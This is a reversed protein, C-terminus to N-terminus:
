WGTLALFRTVAIAAPWINAGRAKDLAHGLAKYEDDTLRRTRRGDAPRIIGHVPNDQRMRHRVAYGFIAGLLGVTRAATGKGGRVHAVGRPKTKTRGATKGAAVDFMFSEVDGRT